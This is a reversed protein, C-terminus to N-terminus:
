RDLTADFSAPDVDFRDPAHGIVEQELRNEVAAAALNRVEPDPHSAALDALIRRAEEGGFEALAITATDSHYENATAVDVLHSFYKELRRSGVVRLAYGRADKRRASLSKEIFEEGRPHGLDILAAAAEVKLIPHAFWKKTVAVLDDAAETARLRALTKAAAALYPEHGLADVCEAIMDERADAPIDGPGASSTELLAGLSFTVQMRDEGGLRHRAALFRDVLDAWGNKVAIQTAVVVIEPDPDDLAEVVADHATSSGPGLRHLAILAHYRLDAAGADLLEVLVPITEDPRPSAELAVCATIRARMSEFDVLEAPIHLAANAEHAPAKGSAVAELFRTLAEATPDDHADSWHMERQLANAVDHRIPGYPDDLALCLLQLRDARRLHKLRYHLENRRARNNPIHNLTQM